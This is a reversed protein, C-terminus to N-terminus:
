KISQCWGGYIVIPRMEFTATMQTAREKLEASPNEVIGEALDDDLPTRERKAVAM